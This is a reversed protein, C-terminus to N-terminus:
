IQENNWEQKKMIELANKYKGYFRQINFARQTLITLGLILKEKNQRNCIIPSKSQKVDRDYEYRGLLNRVIASSLGLLKCLDNTRAYLM